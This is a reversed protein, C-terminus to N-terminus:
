GSLALILSGFCIPEQKSLKLLLWMSSPNPEQLFVNWILEPKEELLREQEITQFVKLGFNSWFYISHANTTYYRYSRIILTGDAKSIKVITWYITNNKM